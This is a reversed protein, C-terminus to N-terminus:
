NPSYRKVTTNSKRRLSESPPPLSPLRCFLCYCMFSEERSSEERSSEEWSSEEQSSDKGSSDEGSSDEGSSEERSSDKRSSDQIHSQRNNTGGEAGGGKPLIQYSKTPNPPIQHSKTPHPLIHYSKTPNPLIQYSKSLPEQLCFFVLTLPTRNEVGFHLFWAGPTDGDSGDRGPYNKALRDDLISSGWRFREM